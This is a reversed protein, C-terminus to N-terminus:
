RFSWFFQRFGALGFRLLNGVERGESRPLSNKVSLEKGGSKWM